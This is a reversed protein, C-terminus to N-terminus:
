YNEKRGIGVSFLYNAIRSSPYRMGGRCETQAPHNIRAAFIILRAMGKEAHAIAYALDAAHIVYDNGARYRNGDRHGVKSLYYNPAPIEKGNYIRKYFCFIEM